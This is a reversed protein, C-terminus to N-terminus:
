LIYGVRRPRLEPYAAEQIEGVLEAHPSKIHGPSDVGGSRFGCPLCYAAHDETDLRLKSRCRPCAEGPKYAYQKSGVLKLTFL